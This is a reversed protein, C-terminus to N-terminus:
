DSYCVGKPVMATHGSGWNATLATSGMCGSLVIDDYRATYKGDVNSFVPRIGDGSRACINHVMRKFVEYSM